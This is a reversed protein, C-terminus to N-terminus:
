KEINVADYGITGSSVEKWWHPTKAPITIVDGKRLQHTTGGEIGKARVQGARLERPEIM